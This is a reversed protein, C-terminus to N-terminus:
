PLFLMAGEPTELEPLAPMSPLTQLVPPSGWPLTELLPLLHLITWTTSTHAPPQLVLSKM